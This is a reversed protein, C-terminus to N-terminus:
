LLMKYLCVCLESASTADYYAITRNGKNGIEGKNYDYFINGRQWSLYSAFQRVPYRHAAPWLAWSIVNNVISGSRWEERERERESDEESTCKKGWHTGYVCVSISSNTCINNTDCKIKSKNQQAPFYMDKKKKEQKSGDSRNHLKKKRKM